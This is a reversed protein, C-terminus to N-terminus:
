LYEKIKITVKQYEVQLQRYAEESIDPVNGSSGMMELCKSFLVLKELGLNASSGKFAHAACKLAEADRKKVADGIIEINELSSSLYVTILESFNDEMIGKLEEIVSENISKKEALEAVSPLCLELQSSM